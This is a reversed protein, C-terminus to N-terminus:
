YMEMSQHNVKLIKVLFGGVIFDMCIQIIGQFNRGNMEMSIFLGMSFSKESKSSLDNNVKMIKFLRLCVRICGSLNYFFLLPLM